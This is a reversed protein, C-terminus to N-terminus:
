NIEFFFPYTINELLNRQEIIYENNTRHFDKHSENISSKFCLKSEFYPLEITYTKCKKYIFEDAIVISTNTINRTSDIIKSVGAKRIIYILTSFNNKSWSKMSLENKVKINKHKYIVHLQIIEWDKPASNIYYFIIENFNSMNKFHIDDECVIGINRSKDNNIRTLAEIHSYFCGAQSSSCKKKNYPKTPYKIAPIRENYKYHELQTTMSEFREKCEDLNIWYIYPTINLIKSIDFFISNIYNTDAIVTKCFQVKDITNSNHSIVVFVKRHELLIYPVSFNKTFSKEEFYNNPTQKYKSNKLLQKKYAFSGNMINKLNNTTKEYFTNEKIDYIVMSSCGALLKISNVLSDVSYQVRSNLQFDDDDFCVIIDGSSLENLKNRKEWIEFHKSNDHFYKISTDKIEFPYAIPTDDFIILEMKDKPYTQKQYQEILFPIYRHRKYTPCIVSVFVM